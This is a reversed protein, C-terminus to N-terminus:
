EPTSQSKLIFNNLDFTKLNGIIVMESVVSNALEDSEALEFSGGVGQLVYQYPENEFCLLGKM